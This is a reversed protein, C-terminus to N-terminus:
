AGPGKARAKGKARRQRPKGALTRPASRDPLGTEAITAALEDLALTINGSAPGGWGWGPRRVDCRACLVRGDGRHQLIILKRGTSREFAAAGTLPFEPPAEFPTQLM